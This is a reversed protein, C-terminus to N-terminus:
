SLTSKFNTKENFLLLVSYMHHYPITIVPLSYGEYKFALSWCINIFFFM